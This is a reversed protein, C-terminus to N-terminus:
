AERKAKLYEEFTDIGDPTGIDYYGIPSIYAAMRKRGIVRGYIEKELSVVTNLPIDRIVSKKFIQVGGDVYCNGELGAKDYEIV